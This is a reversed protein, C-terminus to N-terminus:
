ISGCLVGAGGKQREVAKGSTWAVGDAQLCDWSPSQIAIVLLQTEIIPIFLYPFPSLFSLLHGQQSVSALLSSRQERDAV